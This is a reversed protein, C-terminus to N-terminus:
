KKRRKCDADRALQKVLLEGSIKGGSRFAADMFRESRSWILEGSRLTLTGSAIWSRGGVAGVRGGQTQMDVTVELIADADAAKEALTLCTRGGRLTARAKEAAQNNGAVFVSTVTRLRPDPKDRGDSLTLGLALFWCAVPFVARM